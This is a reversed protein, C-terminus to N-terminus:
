QCVFITYPVIQTYTILGNAVLFFAILWSNYYEKGIWLQIFEGGFSLFGIIILGMIVLQFRGVKISLQEIEDHKGSNYLRTIKPLFLGNLANSFTWIYGEISIAISFLAIQSSNSWFALYTPVLNIMLRQSILIVMTWASFTLVSKLLNRNLKVLKM